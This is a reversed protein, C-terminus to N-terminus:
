VKVVGGARSSGRQGIIPGQLLQVAAAVPAGGHHELVERLQEVEGKVLQQWAQAQAALHRFLLSISHESLGQAALSRPELGLLQM